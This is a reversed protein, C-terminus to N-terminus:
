RSGAAVIICRDRKGTGDVVPGHAGPIPGNICLNLARLKGRREKQKRNREENVVQEAAFLEIGLDM